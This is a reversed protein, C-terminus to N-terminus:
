AELPPVQELLVLARAALEARNRAVADGHGDLHLRHHPVLRLVLLVVPRGHVIAPADEAPKADAGGGEIREGHAVVVLQGGVVLGAQLVRRVHQHERRWVLEPLDLHLEVLLSSGDCMTSAVSTANMARVTTVTPPAMAARSALSIM